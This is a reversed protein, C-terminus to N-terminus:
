SRVEPIPTETIQKLRLPKFPGIIQNGDDTVKVVELLGDRRLEDVDANSIRIDGIYNWGIGNYPQTIKAGPQALALLIIARRQPTM